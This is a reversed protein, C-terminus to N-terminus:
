PLARSSESQEREAADLVATPYLVRQLLSINYAGLWNTYKSCLAEAPWRQLVIDDKETAVFLDHTVAQARACRTERRESPTGAFRQGSSWANSKTREMQFGLTLILLRGDNLAELKAENAEEERAREQEAARAAPAVAAAVARVAGDEAAM